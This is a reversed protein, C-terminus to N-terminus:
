TKSAALGQLFIRSQYRSTNKQRAKAELGKPNRIPKPCEAGAIERSHFLAFYYGTSALVLVFHFSRRAV